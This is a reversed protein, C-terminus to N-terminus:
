DSGRARDLAELQEIRDLMKHLVPILLLHRMDGPVRLGSIDLSLRNLLRVAEGLLHAKTLESM